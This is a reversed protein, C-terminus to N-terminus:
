LIITYILIKSFFIHKKYSDVLILNEYISVSIRNYIHYPVAIKCGLMPIQTVIQAHIFGM